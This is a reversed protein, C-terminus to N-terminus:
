ITFWNSIMSMPPSSRSNMVASARLRTRDGFANRCAIQSWSSCNIERRIASPTTSIRSIIWTSICYRLTKDDVSPLRLAEDLKEHFLTRNALGTLPDFKALTELKEEAQKRDSVDRCIVVYVRSDEFSTANMTLEMLFEVGDKRRGRLEQRYQENGPKENLLYAALSQDNGATLTAINSGICEVV